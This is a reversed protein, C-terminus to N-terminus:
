VYRRAGAFTPCDAHGAFGCLAAIQADADEVTWLRVKWGRPYRSELYLAELDKLALSCGGGGPGDRKGGAACGDGDGYIVLYMGWNRLLVDPHGRCAARGARAGLAGAAVSCAGASRAADPTAVCERIDHGEDAFAVAAKALEQAGLRGDDAFAALKDWQVANCCSSSRV